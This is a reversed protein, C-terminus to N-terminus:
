YIKRTIFSFSVQRLGKSAASIELTYSDTDDFAGEAKVELLTPSGVIVTLLPAELIQIGISVVGLTM